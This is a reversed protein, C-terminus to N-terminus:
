ELHLNSRVFREKNLLFHSYGNTSRLMNRKEYIQISLSVSTCFLRNVKKLKAAKGYTKTHTEKYLMHRKINVCIKTVAIVM